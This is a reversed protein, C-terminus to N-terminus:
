CSTELEDILRLCEHLCDHVSSARGSLRMHSTHGELFNRAGNLSIVAFKAESFIRYWTLHRPDVTHGSAQEYIRVAEQLTISAQPGWLPRYVWTIDELPDGLHALEWDLLLTIDQGDHLFNGIRMDGHVLTVRPTAPLHRHLWDFVSALAPMPEMRNKLFQAQWEQLVRLPAQQPDQAAALAPQASQWDIAHLQAAVDMLQTILRRTLASGPQLLDTVSTSGQGRLMVFGPMGLIAGDQDLWLPRPVPLDGCAVLSLIDYERRPDVELQGAELRGLLVCAHERRAPGDNWAADFAWARRANGGSLVKIGTVEIDRAGAERAAILACLRLTLSAADLAPRTSVSLEM